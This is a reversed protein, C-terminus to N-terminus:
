RLCVADYCWKGLAKRNWESQGFVFPAPVMGPRLVRHIHERPDEIRGAGVWPDREQDPLVGPSVVSTLAPNIFVPVSIRPGESSHNCVRHPTAKLRGGTAVQLLEGLNILFTDDLPPADLWEGSPSLIQLGAVENQLLITIWSWDCHPAVGIRRGELPQRPYYILKMLLYAEESSEGLLGAEPLGLALAFLQLLRRGLSYVEELFGLLTNRWNAGLRTPWLNPGQLQLYEPGDHATPAELGLHFQERWDRENRLVSYGRFHASRRLHVGAKEEASLEFFVRAASLVQKRLACSVPPNALYFAGSGQCAELLLGAFSRLHDGQSPLLRGDLVPLQPM